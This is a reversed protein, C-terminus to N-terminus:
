KLGLSKLFGRIQNSSETIIDDIIFKDNGDMATCVVHDKEIMMIQLPIEKEFEPAYARVEDLTLPLKTKTLPHTPHGEPVLSES